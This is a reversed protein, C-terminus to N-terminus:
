AAGSTAFPLDDRFFISIMVTPMNKSAKQRPLFAMKSKVRANSAGIM